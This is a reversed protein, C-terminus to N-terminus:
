IREGFDRRSICRTVRWRYMAPLRFAVLRAARLFDGFAAQVIIDVATAEFSKRPLDAYAIPSNRLTILVLVLPLVPKLHVHSPVTRPTGARLPYLLIPPTRPAKRPEFCRLVIRSPPDRDERRMGDALTDPKQSRMAERAQQFILAVWHEVRLAFYFRAHRRFLASASDASARAWTVARCLPTRLSILQASGERESGSLAVRLLWLALPTYQIYLSHLCSASRAVMNVSLSLSARRPDTYLACFFRRRATAATPVNHTVSLPRQMCMPNSIQSPSSPSKRLGEAHRFQPIVRDHRTRRAIESFDVIAICHESITTLQLASASLLPSLSPAHTSSVSSDSSTDHGRYRSWSQAGSSSLQGFHVSLAVSSYATHHSSSLDTWTDPGIIRMEGEVRMRLEFADRTPAAREEEAGGHCWVLVSSRRAFAPHLLAPACPKRCARLRYGASDSARSSPPLPPSTPSPVRSALATGPERANRSRTTILSPSAHASTERSAHQVFAPGAARMACLCHQSRPGPRVPHSAAAAEPLARRNAGLPPRRHITSEAVRSWRAWPRALLRPVLAAGAAVPGQPRSPLRCEHHLGRANVPGCAPAARGRSGAFERAVRRARCPSSSLAAAAASLAPSLYSRAFLWPTTPSVPAQPPCSVAMPTLPPARVTCRESRARDLCVYEASRLGCSVTLRARFRPRRRARQAGSRVLVAPLRAVHRAPPLTPM